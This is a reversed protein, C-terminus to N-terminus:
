NKNKFSYKYTYKSIQRSNIKKNQIKVKLCIKLDYIMMSWKEIYINKMIMIFLEIDIDYWKINM